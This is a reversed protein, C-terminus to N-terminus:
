YESYQLKRRFPRGNIIKVGTGIELLPSRVLLFLGAHLHPILHARSLFHVLAMTVLYVDSSRNVHDYLGFHYKPCTALARGWRAREVIGGRVM